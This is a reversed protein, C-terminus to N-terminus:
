RQRIEYRSTIRAAASLMAWAPCYKTESLEIAREVAGSDVGEGEVVYVVEIDTFIRPHEAAQKGLVRVELGRLPQRKKRLISLVDMATCGALGALLLDVPRSGEEQGGHEPASDLAIVQDPHSHADFRMEGQWRVEVEHIAM